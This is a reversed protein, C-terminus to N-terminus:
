VTTLHYKGCNPCKYIDMPDKLYRKAKRAKNITPYAIKGKCKQIYDPTSFAKHRQFRKSHPNYKSNHKLKSKYKM